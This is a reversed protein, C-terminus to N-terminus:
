EVVKELIKEIKEIREVQNDLKFMIKPVPRMHLRKNIIQQIPYIHQNILKLIEKEHSTPFISVGVSAHELTRSVTVITITVIVGEPLRLEEFIAKSIEERLLNNVKTLRSIL